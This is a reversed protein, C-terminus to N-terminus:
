AAGVGWRLYYIRNAVLIGLVAKWGFNTLMFPLGWAWRPLSTSSWCTFSM